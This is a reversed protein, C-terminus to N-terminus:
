RKKLGREHAALPRHKEAVAVSVALYLLHFNSATLFLISGGLTPAIVRGIYTASSSHSANEVNQQFCNPSQHRLSQFSSQRQSGTTFGSL